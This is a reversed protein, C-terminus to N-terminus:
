FRLQGGIRLQRGPQIEEFVEYNEDLINAVEVYIASRVGFRKGIRLNLIHAANATTGDTRLQKGLYFYSPQVFYGHDNLYQLGASAVFDPVNAYKREETSLGDPFQGRADNLGLNLFYTTERNLAGEAGLRLGRIRADSAGETASSLAPQRGVDLNQQFLGFRLLSGNRLTHNFEFEISKGTGFRLFGTDYITPQPLDSLSFLFQDRPALLEFDNITGMLKRLRLQLGTRENPRYDAILAPLVQTTSEKV